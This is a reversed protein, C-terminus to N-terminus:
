VAGGTAEYEALRAAVWRAAAGVSRLPSGGRGRGDNCYAFRLPTSFGFQGEPDPAALCAWIRGRLKGDGQTLTGVIAKATVTKVGTRTVVFDHPEDRRDGFDLWPTAPWLLLGAKQRPPLGYGLRASSTPTDRTDDTDEGTLVRAAGCSTCVIRVRIETFTNGHTECYEDQCKHNHHPEGFGRHRRYTHESRRWGIDLAPRKCGTLHPLTEWGLYTDLVSSM